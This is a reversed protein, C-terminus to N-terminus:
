CRELVTLFVRFEFVLKNISPLISRIELVFSLNSDLNIDDSNAKPTQPANQSRILVKVSGNVFSM